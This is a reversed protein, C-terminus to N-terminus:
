YDSKAIKNVRRFVPCYIKLCSMGTTNFNYVYLSFLFYILDCDLCLKMQTCIPQMNRSYIAMLLSFM